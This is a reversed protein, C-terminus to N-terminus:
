WHILSIYFPNPRIELRILIDPFFKVLMSLLNSQSHFNFILHNLVIKLRNIINNPQGQRLFLKVYNEM